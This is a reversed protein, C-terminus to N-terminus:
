KSSYSIDDKTNLKKDGGKSILKYYKGNETSTYILPTKWSDLELDRRLPNNRIISKLESPYKGYQKKEAELLKTVETMIKETKEQNKGVSVFLTILTFIPLIFLLIIVFQKTYPFWVIRKPLNNEKEFKRQKRHKIWYKIELFIELISSILESM